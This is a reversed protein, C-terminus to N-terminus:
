TAAVNVQWNVEDASPPPQLINGSLLSVLGLTGGLTAPPAHKGDACSVRFASPVRVGLAGSGGAWTNLPQPPAGQPGANLLQLNIYRCLASGPGDVVAPASGAAVRLTKGSLSLLDTQNRM